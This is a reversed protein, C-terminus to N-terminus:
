LFDIMAAREKDTPQPVRPRPPPMIKNSLYTKMWTKNFSNLSDWNAIPLYPGIGDRLGHCTVCYKQFLQKPGHAINLAQPLENQKKLAQLSKEQFDKCLSPAVSKGYDTEKLVLDREARTIMQLQFFAEAIQRSMVGGTNFDSTSDFQMSWGSIERGAQMLVYQLASNKEIEENSGHEKQFQDNITRQDALEGALEKIYRVRNKYDAADKMAIQQYILPYTKKFDFRRLREPFLTDLNFNDFNICIPAAIIAYRYNFLTQERKIEGAIRRFNLQGIFRTFVGNRENDSAGEVLYQYRSHAGELKTFRDFGQQEKSNTPLGKAFLEDDESGYVGPWLFYSDWIPRFPDGHCVVCSTPHLDIKHEKTAPSFEIKLPQIVGTIPDSEAAELVHFGKQNSDGNFTIITNSIPSGYQEDGSSTRGGMLVRPNDFSAEQLSLSYYVLAFGSRFGAPLKSLLDELRYIKNNTVLDIIMKETVQPQTCSLQEARVSNSILFGLAFVTLIRISLKNPFAKRMVLCKLTCVMGNEQSVYSPRCSSM